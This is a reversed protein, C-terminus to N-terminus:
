RGRRLAREALFQEWTVCRGAREAEDTEAIVQELAAEDEPSLIVGGEAGDQDQEGSSQTPKKAAATSM